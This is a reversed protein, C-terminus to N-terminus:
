GAILGDLIPTLEEQPKFGVLTDKLEGDKFLLMTPVGRIGFRAAVDPSTDVDVKVFKVKGAYEEALADLVPAVMKCPGCWAAFVDVVVPVGAQEVEAEFQDSNIPTVNSM